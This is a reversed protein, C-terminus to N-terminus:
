CFLRALFSVRLWPSALLVYSFLTCVFLTARPLPSAWSAVGGCVFGGTARVGPGIPWFRQGGALMLASAVEPGRGRWAPVFFILVLVLSILKALFCFVAGLFDRCALPRALLVRAGHM